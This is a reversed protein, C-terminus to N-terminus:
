NQTPANARRAFGRIWNERMALAKQRQDPTLIAYFQRSADARVAALNGLTTGESRALQAVTDASAHSQIAERVSKRETRLAQTYPQASKHAEKFISRAQDQQQATLNLSVSMRNFAKERFAQGPAFGDVAALLTGAALALASVTILVARPM